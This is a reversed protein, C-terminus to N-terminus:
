LLTHVNVTQVQFTGTPISPVVPESFGLGFYQERLHRHDVHVRDLLLGLIGLQVLTWHVLLRLPRIERVDREDDHLGYLTWIM